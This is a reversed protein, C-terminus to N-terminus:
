EQKKLLSCLYFCKKLRCSSKKNKKNKGITLCEFFWLPCLPLIINKMGVDKGIIKQHNEAVFAIAAQYHVFFGV